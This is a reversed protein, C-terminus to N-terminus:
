EPLKELRSECGHCGKLGGVSDTLVCTGFLGCGFVKLNVTKNVCTPCKIWSVHEGRYVCSDSIPAAPQGSFHAMYAAREASSHNTEGRCIALPRGVLGMKECDDM